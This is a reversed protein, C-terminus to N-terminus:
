SQPPEYKGKYGITPGYHNIIDLPSLGDKAGPEDKSFMQVVVTSKPSEFDVTTPPQYSGSSYSTGSFSSGSLRGNLTTSESYHGNSVVATSRTVTDSKGVIVFSHYGKELTLEAARVLTIAQARAPSTFENGRTTIEYSSASLPVESFGGM